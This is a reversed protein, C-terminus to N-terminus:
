YERGLCEVGLYEEGLFEGRRIGVTYLAVRSVSLSPDIMSPMFRQDIADELTVRQGCHDDRPVEVVEERVPLSECDTDAKTELSDVVVDRVRVSFFM